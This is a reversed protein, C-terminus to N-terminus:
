NILLKMLLLDQKYQEEEQIMLYTIQSKVKKKAAGAAGADADAQDEATFETNITEGTGEEFDNEIGTDFYSPIGDVKRGSGGLDKLLKAEQPNIYSLQHPQDNIMREKPVTTGGAERYITPLGGQSMPSAFASNPM